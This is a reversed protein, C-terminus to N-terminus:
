QKSPWYHDAVYSYPLDTLRRAPVVKSAYDRQSDLTKKFFPSKAAEAKAIDDWAELTKKLIDRPTEHVAVGHKTRLEHLAAANARLRVMESKLTAEISANQIIAQLDPSLSKWVDGNIILEVATAPEHTSTTYFHKWITHFGIKMDEGPGVFEACDIVGREGAPVIEGGPINVPTVGARGFVEATIGTQRCKRGKLDAWDKVPRKFWGLSQQSASTMPFVVVNAKLEKQYFENYLALGGGEYIWGMYDILDFGFPGGPAPGFLTAARNKGVWYAPATHGGDLVKRSVADLMEFPPVVSGAAQMEITLRGGSMVAVRDAFYKGSEAFLSSPPFSSQFKLKTQAQALAPVFAATALVVAVCRSLRKISM